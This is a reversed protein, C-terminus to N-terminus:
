ASKHLLPKVKILREKPEQPEPNFYTEPEKIGVYASVVGLLIWSEFFRFSEQSIGQLLVYVMGLLLAGGLAPRKQMRAQETKVVYLLRRLLQLLPFYWAAVGLFGLEAALRAPLSFVPPWSKRLDTFWGMIEKSGWGWTPLAYRANFAYQGPGTGFIPNESFLGFATYNSIFRSLNSQSDGRLIIKALYESRSLFFLCAFLVLFLSSWLMPFSKPAHAPKAKLLWPLFIAFVGMGLLIVYATRASTLIFLLVTEWLFFFSLWKDLPKRAMAWRGYVWVLSFGLYIAMTAPEGSVGRLRGDHIQYIVSGSRFLNSLSLYLDSMFPLWWGALEISSVCFVLLLGLCIPKTITKKYFEPIQAFKATVFMLVVGFFFSAFTTIVKNLGTRGKLTAELIDPMNTISSMIFSFTMLGVLWRLEVALPGRSKEVMLLPFAVTVLPLLIYFSSMLSFEGLIPPGSIWDVPLVFVALAFIFSLFGYQRVQLKASNQAKGMLM